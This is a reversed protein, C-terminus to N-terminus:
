SVGWARALARLLGLVALACLVLAMALSLAVSLSSEMVTYIALPMTQSVGPLNGAVFITAGFEGLARAWAMGVGVFIGPAALPLTVKFFARVPDLGLSRAVWVLEVDVRRFAACAASLYFPAAVVVQALVVAGTSFVWGSAKGLLGDPSMSVLLALGIVAPPLVMPLDVVAQWAPHRDRQSLWWAAPTGLVVIVLVSMTSTRLSLGLAPAWLPHEWASSWAAPQAGVLLGALPLALLLLMPAAALALGRDSRM